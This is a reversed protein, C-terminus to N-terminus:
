AFRKLSLDTTWIIYVLLATFAEFMISNKRWGNFVLTGIVHRRLYSILRKLSLSNVTIIESSLFLLFPTGKAVTERSPLM